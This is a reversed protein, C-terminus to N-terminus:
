VQRAPMTETRHPWNLTQGWGTAKDAKPAPFRHIHYLRRQIWVGHMKSALWTGDWIGRAGSCFWQIKESGCLVANRSLNEKSIASFSSSVFFVCKLTIRPSVHRKYLRFSPTAASSSRHYQSISNKILISWASFVKRLGHKWQDFILELTWACWTQSKFDM